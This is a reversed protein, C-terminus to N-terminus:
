GPAILRWLLRLDRPHNSFLSEFFRVATTVVIPADWNETATRRDPHDYVGEEGESGIIGSHHELVADDGLAQRYARANQEIISLYPIVVIVRRAEGLLSARRLAFAMSAFTKGGGTPVTLSFLNGASGAGALCAALVERRARKVAGEPMQAALREVVEILQALRKEPDLRPGVKPSPGSEGAHSATDLRDADVLCSLLMRCDLDFALPEKIKLVGLLEFCDRLGPCDRLARDWLAEIEIKAEQVRTTLVAPDTMGAHHGAVTFAADLAQAKHYAAAAGYIAHPARKLEGRLLKQFDDRYKGLDHLLGIARARRSFEANRGAELALRTLALGIGSSHGVVLYTRKM